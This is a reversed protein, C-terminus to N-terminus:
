MPRIQTQRGLGHATLGDCIHRQVVTVPLQCSQLLDFHPMSGRGTASLPKKERGEMQKDTEDRINENDFLCTLSKGYM